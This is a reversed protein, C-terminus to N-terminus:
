AAPPREAQAILLALTEIELPKSLTALVRAGCNALKARLEPTAEGTIVIVPLDPYDRGVALVLGVGDFPMGIDTLLLDYRTGTHLEALAVMGNPMATVDHGLDSVLDSLVDLVLPDDDCALIKM